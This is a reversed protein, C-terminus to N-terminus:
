KKPSGLRINDIYVAGKYEPSNSSVRVGLKRVDARLQDTFRVKWDTGDSSIDARITNWQGPVLEIPKRMETWAWNEGVTVIIEAKMKAPAGAPVFVDAMLYQHGTFDMFNGSEREIEAYAGSWMRAPFTSNIKLSAKGSSAQTKDQAVDLGANDNKAFAWDPIRWGDLDTEFDYIKLVSMTEKAGASAAPASKKADKKKPAAFSPSALLAVAILVLASRDVLTKKM